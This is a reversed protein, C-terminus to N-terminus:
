VASHHSYFVAEVLQMSPQPWVSSHTLNRKLPFVLSWGPHSCSAPMCETHTEPM